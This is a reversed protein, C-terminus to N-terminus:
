RTWPLGAARWGDGAAPHGEFGELINYAKKFGASAAVLAAYHSRVGSRCLFLLPQTTDFAERLYKLFEHVEDAGGDRPWVILPPGEVHGVDRWEAQTRVDVIQAAGAESLRYAEAPTVAGAYQVGLRHGRHAAREFIEAPAELQDEDIERASM